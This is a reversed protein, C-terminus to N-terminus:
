MVKMVKISVAVLVEFTVFTDCNTKRNKTNGYSIVLTAQMNRSDYKTTRDEYVVDTCIFDFSLTGTAVSYSKTWTVQNDATLIMGGNFWVWENM